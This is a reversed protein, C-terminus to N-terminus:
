LSVRFLCGRQRHQARAAPKPIRARFFPADGVLAIRATELTLSAAAWAGGAACVLVLVGVATKRLREM